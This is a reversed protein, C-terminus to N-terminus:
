DRVGYFVPDADKVKEDAEHPLAHALPNLRASSGFYVAGAVPIAPSAWDIQGDVEM